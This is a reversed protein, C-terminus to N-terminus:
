SSLQDAVCVLSRFLIFLGGFAILLSEIFHGFKLLDLHRVMCVFKLMKSGLDLNLNCHARIIQSLDGLGDTEEVILKSVQGLEVRRLEFHLL